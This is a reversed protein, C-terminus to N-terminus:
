KNSRLPGKGGKLLEYIVVLCFFLYLIFFLSFMNYSFLFFKILNYFDFILLSFNLDYVIDWSKIRLGVFFVPIMLLGRIRLLTLKENLVVRCLYILMVILGRIFLLFTLYSYFYSNLVFILRLVFIILYYIFLLILILPSYSVFCLSFVLVIEM